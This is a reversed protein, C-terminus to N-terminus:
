RLVEIKRNVVGDTTTLTLTYIGNALDGLALERHNTNLGQENRLTRGTMDTLQLASFQQQGNLHVVLRDATPNPYALLKGDLYAAAETPAFDAVETAPTRKIKLQYPNVRVANLHGASNMTTATEGGLTTIIDGEAATPAEENGGEYNLRFGAIDIVVVDVQAVQGYGTAFVDSTRTVAADLRGSSQDNFNVSLIPSDYSLWSDEGFTIDVKTPDIYTTNYTFPLRFGAIDIVVVDRSGAIVDLTLLDGPEAELPGRFAVEFNAFDQHAPRLRHQLGLNEMVVQTDLSTIFQDGNADIYKYDLGNIDEGWDEAHQASWNGNNGTLRPTGNGGMALGIPLLDGVDVVGDNNTDGPWVCDEDICANPDADTVTISVDVQTTFGCNGDADQNLCYALTLQDSQGTATANPLYSLQGTLPDTIVTGQSPPIVLSWSIGGGQADYTLKVPTGAPTTLTTEEAAPAFNSVFVYATQVEPDGDCGPAMSSYTFEDVGSWGTPPTYIVEGKRGTEVLSGFQPAGFVVCDAFVDYLDNHLVNIRTENDVATYARDEAAFVNSELDLVTIHYVTPASGPSPTYSLFEDGIFDENPQYAMVGDLDVMSGSVPAGNPEARETAFIFQPENRKTFVRVTDPETNTGDPSVEITVTGLDCAGLTCIVYNLDTLGVFDASPTFVVNRGVIEATGANVVPVGVLAIEGISAFDNELVPITVSQGSVTSAFDHRAIIEAEDVDIHFETFAVNVGFPFSVLLMNDDGEFDTDPTYTLTYNFTPDETLTVTGNEPQRGVVPAFRSLFNYTVPENIVTQLSETGQAYLGSTVALLCFSLVLNLLRLKM